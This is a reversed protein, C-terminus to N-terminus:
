DRVQFRKADVGGGVHVIITAGGSQFNNTLRVVKEDWEYASSNSAITESTILSM